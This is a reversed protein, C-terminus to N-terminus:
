GWVRRFVATYIQSRFILSINFIKTRNGHMGHQAASAIIVIIILYSRTQKRNINLIVSRNFIVMNGVQMVTNVNRMRFAKKNLQAM